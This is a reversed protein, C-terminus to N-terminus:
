APRIAIVSGEAAASVYVTGDDAVAIGALTYMPGCMDGVGGLQKVVVGAPAGVQLKAAITRRAGTALDCEVVDKSGTDVIYLKGGALAIGEPRQLGDVVTQAKGGALKVVRGGGAEAVYM